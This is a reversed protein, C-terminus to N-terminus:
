LEDFTVNVHEAISFRLREQKQDNRKTVIESCFIM